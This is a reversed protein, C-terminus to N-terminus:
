CGAPVSRSRRARPRCRSASRRASDPEEVDAPAGIDRASSTLIQMVLAPTPHTGHHSAAYAEIVDAAAGSTLPASESTGGFLQLNMQECGSYMKLNSSCLAWGLDGPAVLDVTKGDQGFGGSSLASINNDLYTYHSGPVNIGGYSDQAYARFTTSAGVSLVAPDTSPSGITSNPGADGSSAVVTVGAAVAAEDADRIIDLGSDPFPNGGFSENIVSAGHAVAYNIAQVYGSGTTTNNQAFIKLALLTAGPATGVVKIDCVKPLQHARSVYRSLDYTTNGQAAISAADGFAEAGDTPASIGDGSFDEYSEIVHSGAPSGSSAYAANRLLDPDNTALGDALFAVVIGKGTFGRDANDVDDINALGEPDLEPHAATGCAPHPDTSDVTGGAHTGLAGAGPNVPGPITANPLVQAVLPDTALVRAEDASLSLTLTDPVTTRALVRSGFGQALAAVEQQASDELALAGRQAHAALPRLFVLMTSRASRDTAAGASATAPPVAIALATCAAAALVALKSRPGLHL